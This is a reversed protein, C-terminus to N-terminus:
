LRILADGLLFLVREYSVPHALLFGTKADTTVAPLLQLRIMMLFAFTPLLFVKLVDSDRQVAPICTREPTLAPPTDLFPAPLAWLSLPKVRLPPLKVDHYSTDTGAIGM